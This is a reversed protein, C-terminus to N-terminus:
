VRFRGAGTFGGFSLQANEGFRKKCSSLRRGCVDQAPDEVPQDLRDFMAAGTYGCDGAESYDFSGAAPDWKRYRVWAPCVNSIVQRRPLVVGEMDYVGALEYEIVGGADKAKREVFYVDDPFEATPDAEPQGDLYRAFTRKRVVKAGVLDQLQANLATIQGEV